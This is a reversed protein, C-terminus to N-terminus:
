KLMHISDFPYFKLAGISVLDGRYVPGFDRSDASNLRNDGMVFYHEKPVVYPYRIRNNLPFTSNQDNLYPEDIPKGNLFVQGQILDIEDGPLGIVRKILNDQGNFFVIIESHEPERYYASIKNLILHDGILITPIMSGTPVTSHMFVFQTILIAALIALILETTGELFQKVKVLM